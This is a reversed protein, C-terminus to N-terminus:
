VHDVYRQRSRRPDGLEHRSRLRLKRLAAAVHIEVTRPSICLAEAIDRNTMGGAALRAVEAERPSLGEGYGVRGGRWAGSAKLQARVRRADAHGRISMRGLVALIDHSTEVDDDGHRLARELAGGDLAIDLALTAYYDVRADLQRDWRPDNFICHLLLAHAVSRDADLAWLYGSGLGRQLKGLPEAPGALPPPNGAM